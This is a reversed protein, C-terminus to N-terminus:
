GTGAPSRRSRQRRNSDWSGGFTQAGSAVEQEARAVHSSALALSGRHVAIVAMLALYFVAAMGTEEAAVVAADLEAIAEDWHGAAM